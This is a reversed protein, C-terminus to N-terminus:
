THSVHELGTKLLGLIHFDDLSYYVVKGDRRNKVLRAAKLIRLQHSVASQSMDLVVALDCVCMESHSLAHIIRLRTNDGFVKFLDALAELTDEGLMASRVKRVTDEHICQVDCFDIENGTMVKVGKWKKMWVKNWGERIGGFKKM